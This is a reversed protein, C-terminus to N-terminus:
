AEVRGIYTHEDTVDYPKVTEVVVSPPPAGPPAQAFASGALAAALFSSAALRFCWDLDIKMGTSGRPERAGAVTRTKQVEANRRDRLRTWAAPVLNCNWDRETSERIRHVSLYSIAPLSTLRGR